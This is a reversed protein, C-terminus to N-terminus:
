IITSNNEKKDNVKIKFIKSTESDERLNGSLEKQVVWWKKKLFQSM